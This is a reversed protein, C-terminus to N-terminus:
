RGFFSTVLREVGAFILYVAILRFFTTITFSAISPVFIMMIGLAFGLISMILVFYYYFGHNYPRITNMHSLGSVGHAIFWVPVIITLVWKGANPYALLMIGCMVSMIGMILSLMPGFGTFNALRVYSVIDCIGMVVALVGCVIIIGKLVTDPRTLTYIGLVIYLVGVAIEGWDIHINRKM